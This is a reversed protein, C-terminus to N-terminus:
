IRGNELFILWEITIENNEQIQICLGFHLMWCRVLVGSLEILENFSHSGVAHVTSIDGHVALGFEFL